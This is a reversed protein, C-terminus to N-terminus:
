PESAPTRVGDMLGKMHQRMRHQAQDREARDIYGDKNADLMAFRREQMATFETKSIRGDRDSDAMDWMRQMMKPADDEPQAQVAMSLALLFMTMGFWVIRRM